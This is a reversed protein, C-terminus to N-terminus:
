AGDRLDDLLRKKAKEFAEMNKQENFYYPLLMVSLVIHLAREIDLIERETYEVPGYGKLLSHMIKERREKLSGFDTMHAGWYTLFMFDRMWISSLANDWDILVPEQSDLWIANSPTADGHTLVPHFTGRYPELLQKVRVEVKEIIDSPFMGSWNFKAFQNKVENRILHEIFDDETGTGNAIYGYKEISIGHVKRLLAGLKTHFDEFSVDGDKIAQWGIKGSIYEQVMFGHPFHKADRTYYVIKACPISHEQLQTDVFQLAGDEPWTGSPFVRAIYVGQETTIKYVHNVEGEAIKEASTVPMDLAEQVATVIKEDIAENYRFFADEPM